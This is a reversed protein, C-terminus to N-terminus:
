AAVSRSAVLCVNTGERSRSNVLAVEVPAATTETVLDIPCDPAVSRTGLTPPLLGTEMALLACALETVFSAGYLHGYAAKPVTVPPRASGLAQRIARAETRDGAPTGCGEAFVVSVEDGGRGAAGLAASMAGELGSPDEPHSTRQEIALVEGYVHAGRERAHNLEELLLVAAGEGLVLGSRDRDFPLYADEPDHRESLEQTSVYSAIGIRNIPAECGGALVVDNHGWRIARTGFFLGCAGSARDCAFSKSFGRVGYRISVFGQPATPFWATAQWPNVMLPGQQYFEQFGRQCLDWGGSNNGFSIGVRFPDLEAMSLAADAFALEAAAMAYHSFRDSKAILRRPVHEAPVFDNVQAALRVPLGAPDFRTIPGVATDGALLSAWFRDRGSGLPNLVGIGTVVVRRPGGYIAM